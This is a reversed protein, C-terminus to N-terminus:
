RILRLDGTIKDINSEEGPGIGLATKTGSKIETRGADKVLYTALKNYKAEELLEILSNDGSAVIVKKSGNKEWESQNESDANKYAGLSAHAVQAALKGRSLDLNDDVVIVQKMIKLVESLEIRVILDPRFINFTQTWGSEFQPDEGQLPSTM